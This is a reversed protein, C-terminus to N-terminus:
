KIIQILTRQNNEPPNINYKKIKQNFKVAIGNKENRVIIGKVKCHRKEDPLSFTLLVHRGRKLAERTVIFAGQSSLNSIFERHLRKQIAIDVPILCEERYEGRSQGQRWDELMYILKYKKIEPLLRVLDMIRHDLDGIDSM